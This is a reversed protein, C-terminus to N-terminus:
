APNTPIVLKLDSNQESNTVGVHHEFFDIKARKTMMKESQSSFPKTDVM